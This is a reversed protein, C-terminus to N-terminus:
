IGFGMVKDFLWWHQMNRTQFPNQDFSGKKPTIGPLNLWIFRGKLRVSYKRIQPKPTVPVQGFEVKCRNIVHQTMERWTPLINWSGTLLRPLRRFALFFTLFTRPSMPKSNQLSWRSTLTGQSQYKKYHHSYIRSYRQASLKAEPLICYISERSNGRPQWIHSENDEFEYDWCWKWRKRHKLFPEQEYLTLKSTSTARANPKCCSTLTWGYPVQCQQIYIYLIFSSLFRHVPSMYYLVNCVTYHSSVMDTIDWKIYSFSAGWAWFCIGFVQCLEADLERSKM